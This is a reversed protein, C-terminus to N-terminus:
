LNRGIECQYTVSLASGVMRPMRPDSGDINMDTPMRNAKMMPLKSRQFVTAHIQENHEPLVRLWREIFLGKWIRWITQESLKGSCLLKSKVPSAWRTACCFDCCLLRFNPEIASIALSFRELALATSVFRTWWLIQERFSHQETWAPRLLRRHNLTWFLAIWEVQVVAM